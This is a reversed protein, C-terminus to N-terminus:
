SIERPRAMAFHVHGKWSSNEKWAYASPEGTRPNIKLLMTGIGIGSVHSERTDNSHGVPASDAVQLSIANHFRTPTDMVVMVHGQTLAKHPQKYRFVLIDGAQLQAADDVKNWYHRSRNNLGNFFDYYHQSTPKDTGVSNVLSSYARPYVEELINDVYTSCDVIYIGRSPDFHTGGLKYASYRITDVTKHVFSVLRQGISAAFSRHPTPTEEPIVTDPKRNPICAIIHKHTKHRVHHKKHHHTLAFCPNIIGILLFFLFIFGKTRNM